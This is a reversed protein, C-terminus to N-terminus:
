SAADSIQYSYAWKQGGDAVALPWQDPRSALGTARKLGTNVVTAKGEKVRWIRSRAEPIEGPGTIFLTGDRCALHGGPSAKLSSAARVPKM